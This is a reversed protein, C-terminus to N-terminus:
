RMISNVRYFLTLRLIHANRFSVGVVANLSRRRLLWDIEGLSRSSPLTRSPPRLTDHTPPQSLRGRPRNLVVFGRTPGPASMASEEGDTSAAEISRRPLTYSQTRQRPSPSGPPSYLGPSYLGNISPTGPTMEGGNLKEGTSASVTRRLETTGSGEDESITRVRNLTAFGLLLLPVAIYLCLFFALAAKSHPTSLHKVARDSSEGTNLIKLSTFSLAFGAVGMAYAGVALAAVFLSAVGQPKPIFSIHPIARLLLFTSLLLTLSICSLLKHVLSTDLTVSPTSPQTQSPKDDSDDGVDVGPTSTTDRLSACKTMYQITVGAGNADPGTQLKGNGYGTWRAGSSTLSDRYSRLIWM